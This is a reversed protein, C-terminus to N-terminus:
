PGIKLLSLDTNPLNQIASPVEPYSTNFLRYPITDKKGSINKKKLDKLFDESQSLFFYGDVWGLSDCLGDDCFLLAMALKQKQFPTNIKQAGLREAGILM